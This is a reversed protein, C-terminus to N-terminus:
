EAPGSELVVVLVLVLHRVLICPLSGRLAGPGSARSYSTIRSIHSPPPNTVPSFHFTLPRGSYAFRTSHTIPSFHNTISLRIPAFYNSFQPFLALERCSAGRSVCNRLKLIM